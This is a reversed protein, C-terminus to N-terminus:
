PVVRFIHGFSVSVADKLDILFGAMHGWEASLLDLYDGLTPRGAAVIGLALIIANFLVIVAYSFLRGEEIVDPQRQALMQVTFTLHFAYTFGVAGVVLPEYPTLDLWLHLAGAAVMVVLTYFPFFYPALTIAWNTKSVQVSGGRSGVKLRSVRGGMAFAWIAHTLEHGLVYTRIPRPFVIWVLLWLGVGTILGYFSLPHAGIHRPRLSLVLRLSAVVAVWAVPLLFLGVITKLARM